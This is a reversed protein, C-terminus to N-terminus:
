LYEAYAVPSYASGNHVVAKIRCPDTVVIGTSPNYLTSSTTPTTPQSGNTTITYYISPSGTNFHKFKIVYSYSLLSKFAREGPVFIPPHVYGTSTVVDTLSILAFIPALPETSSESAYAAGSKIYNTTNVGTATSNNSYVNSEDVFQLVINGGTHTFTTQKGAYESSAEQGTIYRDYEPYNIRITTSAGPVNTSHTLDYWGGCYKPQAGGTNVAGHVQILMYTGAPLDTYELPAPVGTSEEPIIMPQLFEVVKVIQMGNLIPLSGTISSPGPLSPDGTGILQFQIQESPTTSQILAAQWNSSKSKIGSAFANSKFKFTETSSDIAFAPM